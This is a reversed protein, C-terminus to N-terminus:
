LVWLHVVCDVKLYGIPLTQPKTYISLVKAVHVHTNKIEKKIMGM